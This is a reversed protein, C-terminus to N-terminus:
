SAALQEQMSEMVLSRQVAIVDREVVEALENLATVMVNKEDDTFYGDGNVNRDLDVYVDIMAPGVSVNAYQGTPVLESATMRVRAMPRGASGLPVGGMDEVIATNRNAASEAKARSKQDAKGIAPPPVDAAAVPEPAAQGPRPRAAPEAKQGPRARPAPSGAADNSPGASVEAAPVGPRARPALTPDAAKAGPRARAAPAPTAAAKEAKAIAKHEECYKPPRGRGGYVLETTCGEYQCTLVDNM